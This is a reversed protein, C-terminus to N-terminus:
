EQQEWARINLFVSTCSNGMELLWANNTKRCHLQLYVVLIRHSITSIRVRQYVQVNFQVTSKSRHEVAGPGGSGKDLM